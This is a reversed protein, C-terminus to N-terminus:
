PNMGLSSWFDKDEKARRRQQAVAENVLQSTDTYVVSKLSRFDDFMMAVMSEPKVQPGDNSIEAPRALDQRMANAIQNTLTYFYARDEDTLTFSDEGDVEGLNERKSQPTQTPKRQRVVYSRENWAAMMALIETDAWIAAKSRVAAVQVSGIVANGFSLVLSSLIQEYTEERRNRLAAEIERKRRENISEVAARAVLGGISAASVGALLSFPVDGWVALPHVRMLVGATVVSGVLLLWLVPNLAASSIKHFYEGVAAWSM